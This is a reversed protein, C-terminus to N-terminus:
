YGVRLIECQINKQVGFDSANGESFFLLDFLVPKNRGVIGGRDLVIAYIDENFYYLGKIRVITGFPYDGAVIRLTGFDKDEYFINNGIFRGSATYGSCGGGCYPTYASINGRITEVPKVSSKNIIIGTSKDPNKSLLEKKKEYEKFYGDILSVKEILMDKYKSKKLNNIKIILKGFSSKDYTKNVEDLLENYKLYIQKNEIENFINVLYASKKVDCFFIKYISLVIFILFIVVLVLKKNNM